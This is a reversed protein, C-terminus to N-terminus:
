CKEILTLERPAPIKAQAATVVKVYKLEKIPQNQSHGSGQRAITFSGTGVALAGHVMVFKKTPSLLKGGSILSLCFPLRRFGSSQSIRKSALLQMQVVHSCSM